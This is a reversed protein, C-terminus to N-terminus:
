DEGGEPRDEDEQNIYRTIIDGYEPNQTDLIVVCRNQKAYEEIQKGSEDLDEIHWPAYGGVGVAIMQDGPVGYEELVKVVAQARDESLSRCFDERGTLSATCGVVYVRNDPHSLLTEAVSYIAQEAQVTDVFRAEDGVFSVSESDLVVTELPAIDTKREEVSVNSVEPLGSYPTNSSSDRRFVIDQAGAEELVSTWIEILKAKQVESLQEQPAATQGAYLWVVKVGELDPIAKEEILAKIIKDTPTHFLDNERFNVYGKTSLGPDAIVLYKDGDSVTQLTDAAIRIAELTDVEPYKASGDSNLAALIEDRYGEAISELKRDSLGGTSPEPINAKLFEEPRGDARILSVTGYTYACQYVQEEIAEANVSIVNANSHTGVVISVSVTDESTTNRSGSGGDGGVPDGCGTLISVMMVTVMIVTCINKMKM